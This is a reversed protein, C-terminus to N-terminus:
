CRQLSDAGLAEARRPPKGTVTWHPCGARLLDHCRRSASGSRRISWIPLGCSPRYTTPHRVGCQCGAGQCQRRHARARENVNSRGCRATRRRARGDDARDPRLRLRTSCSGSRRRARRASVGYGPRDTPPSSASDHWRRVRDGVPWRLRAPRHARGRDEFYQSMGGVRVREHDHLLRAECRPALVNRM